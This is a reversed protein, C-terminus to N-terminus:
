EGGHTEGVPKLEGIAGVDMPTFGPGLGEGGEFLVGEGDFAANSGVTREGDTETEAVESGTFQGLGGGEGGELAPEAEMLAGDEGDISEGEAAEVAGPHLFLDIGGVPGPGFTEVVGSAQELDEGTEKRLVGGGLAGDGGDRDGELSEAQIFAGFPDGAILEMLEGDEEFLQGAGGAVVKMESEFGFGTAVEFGGVFGGPEKITEATIMGAIEADIGVEADIVVAAMEGDFVFVGGFGDATESPGADADGLDMEGIREAEVGGRPGPKGELGEDIGDIEMLHDFTPGVAFQHAVGVEVLRQEGRQVTGLEVVFPADVEVDREVGCGVANELGGRVVDGTDEVFDPLVGPQALMELHFGIGPFDEGGGEFLMRDDILEGGFVGPGEGFQGTAGDL